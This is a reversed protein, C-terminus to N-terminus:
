PAPTLYKRMTADQVYRSFTVLAATSLGFMLVGVMAECAGAIRWAHPLLVDGQGLTTYTLLSFYCATELDSFCRSWVYFQAWLVVELVHLSLLIVLIRMMIWWARLLGTHRRKKLSRLIWLFNAYSGLSHICFTCICLALAIFLQRSM